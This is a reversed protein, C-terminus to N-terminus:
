RRLTFHGKLPEFDEITIHYWYDQVPLENGNYTGDWSFGAGSGSALVKGFRDFIQIESKSFFEVGKLEFRDNQGDNNPTIFVPVVIHPFEQFVTNCGELDRIYAIYIGGPMNTFSNSSQFNNGDLSYEFSGANLAEITITAGRSTIKGMAAEEVPNIEFKKEASCGNANTITVVYSGPSDVEISRGTEGTNWNYSYNGAGADLMIAGGTCLQRSEDSVEPRGSISFTIATRPGAECNFGTKIAEAYYTGETEPYFSTGNGISAGASASTYWLVTEDAQAEVKLPLIPDDECIQVDGLSVPAGPAEAVMVAFAESASSCLNDNLNAADEAVKVRFYRTSQLPASTFNINTAGPIDQWSVEDQSEQWQFAHSSYVSHDPNATLSVNVPTDAACVKISKETTASSNIETRDGCSRFIIDDIALDNGCGGIGNNFMRLIVDSQNAQSRFVLAYQEWKPTRSGPIDGSSGSKLLVTGTEDWIEFRVNIPIGTGECVNVSAANYVNMLFASFEYTTAECLGTISTEYFMGATNDNANVILARGNSITSQPFGPHWTGNNQGIRSSITYQGDNPDGQVYTYNTVGPPLAPGTGIGKGFTEQFIPDGKSGTCFGLQSFVNGSVLFLALFLFIRM